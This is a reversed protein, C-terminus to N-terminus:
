YAPPLGMKNVIARYRPDSHVFDYHPDDQIYVMAPLHERYGVELYHITEEKRKLEANASAFVIPSVYKQTARQKFKVVRWELVAPLGGRRYVHVHEALLDKEDAFQLARESEEEAEKEMGKFFYATSLLEHLDPNNPQADSRVRAENLAADFQRARILM